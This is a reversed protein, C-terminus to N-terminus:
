CASKGVCRDFTRQVDENLRIDLDVFSVCLSLIKCSVRVAEFVQNDRAKQNAESQRVQDKQAKIDDRLAVAALQSGQSISASEYSNRPPSSKNQLYFHNSPSDQSTYANPPLTNPVNQRYIQNASLSHRDRVQHVSQRATRIRSEIHAQSIVPNTPVSPYSPVNSRYFQQWPMTSPQPVGPSPSFPNGVHSRPNRSLPAYSRENGPNSPQPYSHAQSMDTAPRLSACFKTTTTAM